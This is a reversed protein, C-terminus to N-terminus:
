GPAAPCACTGDPPPKSPPSRGPLPNGDPAPSKLSNLAAAVAWACADRGESLLGPLDDGFANVELVWSRRSGVEPALDVGAGLAQPFCALAATAPALLAETRAAGLEAALADQDGRRAGLQLNTFPTAALRPVVFRRAGGIVVVRWDMRGGRWGAKPIWAQALAREACLADVLTAVEGPDTIRRVRRANYLRMGAHDRVLETTTFAQCRAGRREFAVTGSASSGHCLKLFVRRCDAAAMRALLDDFSEPVGLGRPVPVGRSALLQDTAAKDFMIGVDSPPVFWRVAAAHAHLRAAIQALIARWGLYWQRSPWLRGPDNELAAVERRSCRNWRSANPDEEDNEGAGLALIGREVEWNKGPSELRVFVERGAFSEWRVRGRLVQLWALVTPRQGTAQRAARLFNEVRRSEPNGVVVFDASM